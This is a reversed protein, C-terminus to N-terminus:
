AGVTPSEVASSNPSGGHAPATEPLLPRLTRELDNKLDSRIDKLAAAGQAAVWDAVSSAIRSGAPEAAHGTASLLLLSTVTLLRLTPRTM